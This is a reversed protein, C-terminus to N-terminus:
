AVVVGTPHYVDMLGKLIARAQPSVGEIQDLETIQQTAFPTEGRLMATFIVTANVIAEPVAPWGHIGTVQVQTGVPWSNQSGWTTAELQTYPRGEASANLPLLQYYTSTLATEGFVGEGTTDVKVASVSVVPALDLVTPARGLNTYAPLYVRTTASADLNFVQPGYSGGLRRELWRSTATLQSLIVADDAASTKGTQSKYRAVTAYPDTWAM